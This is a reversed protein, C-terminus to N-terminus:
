AGARREASESLGKGALMLTLNHGSMTGSGDRVSRCATLVVDLYDTAEPWGMASFRRRIASQYTMLLSLPLRMLWVARARDDTMRDLEDFIPLKDNVEYGGRQERRTERQPQQLLINEHSKGAPHLVARRVRRALPLACDGQGDYAPPEQGGDDTLTVGLTEPVIGLASWLRARLAANALRGALAEAMLADSISAAKRIRAREAKEANRRGADERKRAPPLSAGLNGAHGIQVLLFAKLMAPSLDPTM